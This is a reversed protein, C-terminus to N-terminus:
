TDPEAVAPTEPWDTVPELEDRWRERVPGSLGQARWADAKNVAKWEVARRLRTMNDPHTRYLVHYWRNLVLPVNRQNALIFTIAGDPDRALDLATADAQNEMIRWMNQRIPTAAFHLMFGLALFAALFGANREGASTATIKGAGIFASAAGVMTLILIAIYGAELHRLQVHAIEHAAVFRFEAASYPGLPPNFARPHILHINVMRESIVAKTTGDLWEAKGGGGDNGPMAATGLVVREMGIGARAAIRAVDDRMPGEAMAYTQKWRVDDFFATAWAMYAGVILVLLLRPRKSMMAFALPALVAFIAALGMAYSLRGRLFNAVMDARTLEPFPCKIPGDVCRFGSQTAPDATLVDYLGFPLSVAVFIIALVAGFGAEALWARKLWAILARLVGDWFGARQLLLAVIVVALPLVILDLTVDLAEDRATCALKVCGAAHEAVLRAIEQEADFATQSGAM